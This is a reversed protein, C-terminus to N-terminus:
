LVIYTACQLLQHFHPSIWMHMIHRMLSFTKVSTYQASPNVKTVCNLHVTHQWNQQVIFYYPTIRSCQSVRNYGPFLIAWRSTTCILPALSLYYHYRDNLCMVHPVESVIKSDTINWKCAEGGIHFIPKQSPQAFRECSGICKMESAARSRIISITSASRLALWSPHSWGRAHWECWSGIQLSIFKGRLVKIFLLNLHSAWTFFARVPSCITQFPWSHCSWARKLIFKQSIAWIYKRCDGTNAVLFVASRDVKFCVSVMAPFILYLLFFSYSYVTNLPDHLTPHIIAYFEHYKWSCFISSVSMIKM